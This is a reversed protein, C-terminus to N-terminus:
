KEEIAGNRHFQGRAGPVIVSPTEGAFGTGSFDPSPWHGSVRIKRYCVLYQPIRKVPVVRLLVKADRARTLRDLHLLGPPTIKRVSLNLSWRYSTTLVVSKGM